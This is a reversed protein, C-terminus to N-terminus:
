RRGRDLLRPHCTPGVLELAHHWKAECLAAAVGFMRLEVGRGSVGPDVVLVELQSKDHDHVIFAAAHLESDEDLVLLEGHDLWSQIDAEGLPLLDPAHAAVFLRRLAQSDVLSGSRVRGHGDRDDLSSPVALSSGM